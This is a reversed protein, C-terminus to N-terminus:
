SDGSPKHLMARTSREETGARIRAINERHTYAVLATMVLTFVTPVDLAAHTVVCWLAIAAMGTVAALGVFGTAVLTAVWVVVGAILAVPLLVLLVGIITAVGKGGRFGFYLPYVHGLVVAGGCAFAWGGLSGTILWAVLGAGIVGKLLDFLLVAAGYAKGGSRLANTAGANGSGSTRLDSQGFLRGLLLAGSLSGILYAVVLALLDLFITM